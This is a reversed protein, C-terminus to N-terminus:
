VLLGSSTGNSTIKPMGIKGVCRRHLTALTQWFVQGAGNSAQQVAAQYLRIKLTSNIPLSLWQFLDKM